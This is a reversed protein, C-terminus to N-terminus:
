RDASIAAVLLDYQRELQERNVAARAAIVARLSDANKELELFQAILRELDLHDLTQCYIGMGM